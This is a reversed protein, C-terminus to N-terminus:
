DEEERSIHVQFKVRGGDVVVMHDEGERSCFLHDDGRSQVLSGGDVVFVDEVLTFPEHMRSGDFFWSAAMGNFMLSGDERRTMSTDGKWWHEGVQIKRCNKASWLVMLQRPPRDEKEKVFFVWFWWWWTLRDLRRSVDLEWVDPVKENKQEVQEAM